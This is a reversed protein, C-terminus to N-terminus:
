RGDAEVVIPDGSQWRWGFAGEKWRVKVYQGVTPAVKFPYSHAAGEEDVTTAHYTDDDDGTGKSV